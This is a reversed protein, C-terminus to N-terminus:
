AMWVRRQFNRSMNILDKRVSATNAIFRGICSLSESPLTQLLENLVKSSSGIKAVIEGLNKINPIGISKIVQNITSAMDSMTLANKASLLDDVGGVINGLISSEDFNTLGKEIVSGVKTLISSDISSVFEKLDDVSSHRIGRLMKGIKSLSSKGIRGVNHALKAVKSKELKSFFTGSLM